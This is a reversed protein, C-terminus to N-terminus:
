LRLNVDRDHLRHRDSWKRLPISFGLAVVLLQGLVSAQSEQWEEKSSILSLLGIGVSRGDGAVILLFSTSVSSVIVLANNPM